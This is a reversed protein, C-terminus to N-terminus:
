IELTDKIMQKSSNLATLNAEYSRTAAIMDVMETVTNVNSMQVYGNEDADPHDPMYVIEGESKDRVEKIKLNEQNINGTQNNTTNSIHNENTTKLKITNEYGGISNIFQNQKQKVVLIKRQYPQGNADRVTNAKAINEAILNMRERQISLGQASIDFGPLKGGIKM